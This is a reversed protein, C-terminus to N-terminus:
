CSCFPMITRVSSYFYLLFSLMKIPLSSGYSGRSYTFVIGPFAYQCVYWCLWAMWMKHPICGAYVIRRTSSCTCNIYAHSVMSVLVFVCFLCMGFPTCVYVGVFHSDPVPFLIRLDYYAIWKSWGKNSHTAGASECLLCMLHCVVGVSSLKLVWQWIVLFCHANNLVFM